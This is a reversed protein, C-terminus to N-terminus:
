SSAALGPRPLGASPWYCSCTTGCGLRTTRGAQSGTLSGLRRARRPHAALHTGFTRAIARSPPNPLATHNGVQMGRVCEVVAIADVGPPKEELYSVILLSLRVIQHRDYGYDPDFASADPGRTRELSLAAQTESLTARLAEADSRLASTEEVLKRFSMERSRQAAAHETAAQELSVVHTELQRIHEYPWAVRLLELASDLPPAAAAWVVAFGAIAVATLLWLLPRRKRGASPVYHLACEAAAGIRASADKADRVVMGNVGVLMDGVSLGSDKFCSSPAVRDILVRRSFIADSLVLGAREGAGKSATAIKVVNSGDTLPCFSNNDEM